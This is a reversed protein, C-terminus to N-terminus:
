DQTPWQANKKTSLFAHMKNQKQIDQIQKRQGLTCNISQLEWINQELLSVSTSLTFIVM